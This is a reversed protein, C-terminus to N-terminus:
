NRKVFNTPLNHFKLTAFYAQEFKTFNNTNFEQFFYTVIFYDATVLPLTNYRNAAFWFAMLFFFMDKLTEKTPIFKVLSERQLSFLFM